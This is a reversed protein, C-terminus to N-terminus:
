RCFLMLWMTITMLFKIIYNRETKTYKQVDKIPIVQFNQPFVSPHQFLTLLDVVSEHRYLLYTALTPVQESSNLMFVLFLPFHNESSQGPLFDRNGALFYNPM